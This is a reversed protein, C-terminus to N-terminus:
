QQLNLERNYRILNVATIVIIICDMVFVPYSKIAFDFVAWQAFNYNESGIQRKGASYGGLFMNSICYFIANVAQWWIM